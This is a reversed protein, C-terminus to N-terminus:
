WGSTPRLVTAADSVTVVRPLERVRRAIAVVITLLAVLSTLAMLGGILIDQEMHDGKQPLDDHGRGGV